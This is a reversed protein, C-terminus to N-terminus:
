RPERHHGPFRWELPTHTPRHKRLHTARKPRPGPPQTQLTRSTKRHANVGFVVMSVGCCPWFRVGQSRLNGTHMPSPRRAITENGKFSARSHISQNVVLNMCKSIVIMERSLHFHQAVMSFPRRPTPHRPLCRPNKCDVKQQIPAEYVVSFVPSAIKTQLLKASSTKRNGPAAETAESTSTDNSKSKAGFSPPAKSLNSAGSVSDASTMNSSMNPRGNCDTKSGEPVLCCASM